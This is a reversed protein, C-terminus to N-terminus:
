PCQHSTDGAGRAETSADDIEKYQPEGYRVKPDAGTYLMLQVLRTEVRKIRDLTKQQMDLMDDIRDVM